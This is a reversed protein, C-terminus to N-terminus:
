RVTQFTRQFHEHERLCLRIRALLLRPFSNQLESRTDNAIVNPSKLPETQFEDSLLLVDFNRRPQIQFPVRRDLSTIVLM